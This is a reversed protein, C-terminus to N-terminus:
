DPWHPSVEVIIDLFVKKNTALELEKRAARGIEKIKGGKKGILMRRYKDKSTIIRGKIFLTGNEREKIEDVVVSTKYPLEEKTFLFVKERILEAVFARSDMNLLPTALFKTEVQPMGEPLFEFIVGLLNKLNKGYLASVELTKAFEEEMFKYQIKYSPKKIDIKNFALIKPTNKFKRVLGLTKNEEGGRYRTHDILYVVLDVKEQTIKEFFGPTDVFIIQGREDEYVARIPLRTTQPKPSTISVKQKLLNNLLTSKGANPRGILAVVGFRM